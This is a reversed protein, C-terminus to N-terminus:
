GREEASRARCPPALRGAHNVCSGTVSWTVNTPSHPDLSVATTQAVKYKAELQKQSAMVQARPTARQRERERERRRDTAELQWANGDCRRVQAAAQRMKILDNQMEEVVTDLLKEPDEASTVARHRHPPLLVVRTWPLSVPM